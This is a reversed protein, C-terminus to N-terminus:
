LMSHHDPSTALVHLLHKTFKTLLTQLRGRNLKNLGDLWLVAMGSVPADVFMAAALVCRVLSLLLPGLSVTTMGFLVVVLM